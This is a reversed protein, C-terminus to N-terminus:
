NVRRPNDDDRSLFAYFLFATVRTLKYFSSSNDINMDSLEVVVKTNTVVVNTNTVVVKTNTVVVKTNTVVVKTNTVVVNTNTVVVKTNTVVVKTNTVVVKTNTVVVKTNTVVVKTNTVVVNTNTVVVNTNTVVVNTNTVVVKTNTVVVKTNTVVVKTNTVVVKTNTVVVKTNTVVVKTNTVVVNTLNISTKLEGDIEDQIKTIREGLPIHPAPWVGDDEYFFCPGKYWLSENKMDDPSIELTAVGAPNQIGSLYNWKISANRINDVRNQVWTKWTKHVGTIWYFSVTSDTWGCIYYNNLQNHLANHILTILKNLLECSLLELRPITTKHLLAVKTKACIYPRLELM